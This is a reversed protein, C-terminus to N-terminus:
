AFRREEQVDDLGLQVLARRRHLDTVKGEGLLGRGFRAVTGDVLERVQAWLGVERPEPRKM